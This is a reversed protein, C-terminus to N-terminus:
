DCIWSDPLIRQLALRSSTGVSVSAISQSVGVQEDARRSTRMGPFVRLFKTPAYMVGAKISLYVLVVKGPGIRPLGRPCERVWSPRSSM